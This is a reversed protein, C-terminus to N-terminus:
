VEQIHERILPILLDASQPTFAPSHALFLFDPTPLTAMAFEAKHEVKIRVEHTRVCLRLPSFKLYFLPFPQAGPPQVFVIEELWNNKTAHTLFNGSHPRRGVGEGDFDDHADVHVVSFPPKLHGNAILAEWADFVEKHYRVFKGPTRQGKKLRLQKELFSLVREPSDARYSDEPLRPDTDAAYQKVPSVFFDLDINLVLQKSM